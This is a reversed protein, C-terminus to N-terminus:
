LQQQIAQSQGQLTQQSATTDTAALVQKQLAPDQAITGQQQSVFAQHHSTQSSPLASTVSTFASQTQAAMEKLSAPSIFSLALFTLAGTLWSIGIFSLLKKKGPFQRSKHTSLKEKEKVM